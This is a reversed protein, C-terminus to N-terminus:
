GGSQRRRNLASRCYPLLQLAIVEEEVAELDETHLTTAVEDLLLDAFKKRARQLIQRTADPRYERGLQKSIATAMTASTEDPHETRYRLITCYPRSQQREHDALAEWTRHLIEERWSADFTAAEDTDDALSDLHATDLSAHHPPRAARRRYDVLMRILATKLYDRFRGRQPAAGHFRGEVLRLAFDAFVEQAADQSRLSAVLYSYIARQYREFLCAQALRVEDGGNHAQRILSWNTAIQSLRSPISDHDM